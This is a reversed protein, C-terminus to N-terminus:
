SEFANEYTKMMMIMMPASSGTQSTHSSQLALSEGLSDVCKAEVADGDPPPAFGAYFLSVDLLPQTNERSRHLVPGLRRM